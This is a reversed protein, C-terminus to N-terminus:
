PSTLDLDIRNNGPKVEYVLESNTSYRAPVTEPLIRDGLNRYTSVKVQNTGIAAGSVSRTRSLEYNGNDDTRGWSPPQGQVTFRVSAGVLPKGDLRVTGTVGAMGDAYGCGIALPLLVGAAIVARATSSINRKV